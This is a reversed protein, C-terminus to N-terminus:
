KISLKIKKNEISYSGDKNKIMKSEPKPPLVKPNDKILFLYCHISGNNNLVKRAKLKDQRVLKRATPSKIDFHHELEWMAYWKDKNRCVYGPIIKKDLAKQCLLCKPGYKDYWSDKGTIQDHCILCNYIGDELHFGRPNEELKKDKEKQKLYSEFILEAYRALAYASREAEKYPLKKGFEKEYIDQFEEINEKSLSM